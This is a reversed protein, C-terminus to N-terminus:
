KARKRREYAASRARQCVRCNRSGDPAWYINAEHRPHGRACVQNVPRAGAERRRNETGTVAELHAPNVCSTNRCLHDIELEPPCPGISLSWALRHAVVNRGAVRFVGYGRTVVAARWEWCDGSKDVKSWFRNPLGILAAARRDRSMCARCREVQRACPSLCSLCTGTLRRTM